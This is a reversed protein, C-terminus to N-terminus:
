ERLASVPDPFYQLGQQCLVVDFSGSDLGTADASAERVDLGTSSRAVAVMMPNLDVGVVAGEAGVIPKAARGVVGTGCALDLVREGATLNASAVLNEAWPLMTLNAIQEYNEAANGTVQSVSNNSM